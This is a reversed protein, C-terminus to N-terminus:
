SYEEGLLGLKDEEGRSHEGVGRHGLAALTLVRVLIALVMAGAEAALRGMAARTLSRQWLPQSGM